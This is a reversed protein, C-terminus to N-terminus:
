LIFVILFMIIMLELNFLKGWVEKMNLIEKDFCKFEEKVFILIIIFFLILLFLIVIFVSWMGLIDELYGGILLGLM